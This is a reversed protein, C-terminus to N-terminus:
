GKVGGSLRTVATNQVVGYGALVRVAELRKVYVLCTHLVLPADKHM